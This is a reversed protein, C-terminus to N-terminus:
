FWVHICFMIFLFLVFIFIIAVLLSAALASFTLRLTEKRTLTPVPIKSEAYLSKGPIHWPMGEINMDAIVRDEEAEMENDKNRDEKEMKEGVEM